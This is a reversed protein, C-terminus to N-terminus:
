RAERFAVLWSRINDLNKALSGDALDDLAAAATLSSGGMAQKKELLGMQMVYQLEVPLSAWNAPNWTEHVVKCARFLNPVVRPIYAPWFSEVPKGDTRAKNRPDITRRLFSAISNILGYIKSRNLHEDMIRKSLAPDLSAILAQMSRTQLFAQAMGGTGIFDLFGTASGLPGSALAPSQFEAVYPEMIAQIYPLKTELPATANFVISLAFEMVLTKEGERLLNQDVLNKISNAIDNYLQILVNPIAVGLKVLSSLAKYRLEKTEPKHFQTPDEGPLRFIAFSFLKELSRLLLQPQAAMAEACAVIMPLQQKVISPDMTNFDVLRQLVSVLIAVMQDHAPRDAETVKAQDLLTDPIAFVINSLLASDAELATLWPHAAPLFGHPPTGAGPGPYAALHAEIRAATWSLTEGPKLATVLRAIELLRNRYQQNFVKLEPISEFDLDNYHRFPSGASEPHDLIPIRAFVTELLTPLSGQIEPTDRVVEHKLAEAFFSGAVSAVIASPHRSIVTMFGVYRDFGTPISKARKRFCIHTEGLAAFAQVLRQLFQYIDEDEIVNTMEVAGVGALGQAAANHAEMWAGVFKEFGNGDFMPDVICSQRNEDTQHLNRSYLVYLTEVTANRIPLSKSSLLDFLRYVTQCEIISRFPLFRHTKSFVKSALQLADALGVEFPDM